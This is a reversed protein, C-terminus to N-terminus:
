VLFSFNYIERLIKFGRNNSFDKNAKAFSDETMNERFARAISKIESKEFNNLNSFDRFFDRYEEWKRKKDELDTIFFDLFDKIEKISEESFDRRKEKLFNEAVIFLNSLSVSGLKNRDSFNDQMSISIFLYLLLFRNFLRKLRNKDIDPRQIDFANHAKSMKEFVDDFFKDDFTLNNQLFNLNKLNKEQLFSFSKQVMKLCVMLNTQPYRINTDIFVGFLENKFQDIEEQSPNKEIEPIKEEM